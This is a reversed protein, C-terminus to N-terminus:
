ACRFIYRGCIYIYKYYFLFLFCNLNIITEWIISKFLIHMDRVNHFNITILSIHKYYFPFIKLLFFPFEKSPVECTWVYLYINNEVNFYFSFSEICMFVNCTWINIFIITLNGGNKCVKAANEERRLYM